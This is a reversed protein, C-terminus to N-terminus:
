GLGICETCIRVAKGYVDGIGDNIVGMIILVAALILLATRVYIISKSNKVAAIEKKVAKGSSVATKYIEIERKVSSDCLYVCIVSILFVIAVPIILAIVASVIDSNLNEVTFNNKDFFYSLPFVATVTFLVVCISKIYLRFKEEKSIREDTVTYKEAFSGLLFYAAREGSYKKDKPIFLSFVAGATIFAICLFILPSINRLVSAVAERSYAGKGGSYINIFSVALAVLTVTIVSATTWKIIEFTINQKKKEM